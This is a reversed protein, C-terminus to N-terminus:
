IAGVVALATALAQRGAAADVLPATLNAVCGSELEVRANSIDVRPPGAFASARKCMLSNETIYTFVEEM